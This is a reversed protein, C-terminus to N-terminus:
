DGKMSSVIFRSLFLDAYSRYYDQGVKEGIRLEKNFFKKLYLNSEFNRAEYVRKGRIYAALVKQKRSIKLSKNAPLARPASQIADLAVRLAECNKIIPEEKM